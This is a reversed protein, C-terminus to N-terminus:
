SKHCNKNLDLLAQKIMLQVVEGISGPLEIRSCVDILCIQNRILIGFARGFMINHESVLQVGCLTKRIRSIWLKGFGRPPTDIAYKMTPSVNVRCVFMSDAPTHTQGILLLSPITYIFSPMIFNPASSNLCKCITRYAISVGQEISCISKVRQYDIHCIPTLPVVIREGKGNDVITGIQIKRGFSVREILHIIAATPTNHVSILKRRSGITVFRYDTKIPDTISHIATESVYNAVCKTIINIQQQVLISEIYAAIERDMDNMDMLCHAQKEIVTVHISGLEKMCSAVSLGLTGGGVVAFSQPIQDLNIIDAVTKLTTNRSHKNSYDKIMYRCNDSGMIVHKTRLVAIQISEEENIIRVIYDEVMVITGEYVVINKESIEKELNQKRQLVEEKCENTLQQWNLDTTMNDFKIQLGKAFLSHVSHIRRAAEYLYKLSVYECLDTMVPAESRSVIAVEHGHQKLILAILYSSLDRGVIVATYEFENENLHHDDLEIAHSNKETM